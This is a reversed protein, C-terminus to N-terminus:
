LLGPQAARGPEPELDGVLHAGLREGRDGGEAVEEPDGSPGTVAEGDVVQQPEPRGFPRESLVLRVHASGEHCRGVREYLAQLGDASYRSLACMLCVTTRVFM